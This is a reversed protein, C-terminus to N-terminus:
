QDWYHLPSSNAGTVTISLVPHGPNPFAIYRNKIDDFFTGPTTGLGFTSHFNAMSEPGVVQLPGSRDFTFSAEHGRKLRIVDQVSKFDSTGFDLLLSVTDDFNVRPLISLRIGTTGFACKCQNGAKMHAIRNLSERGGETAVSVTAQMSTSVSDVFSLYFRALRVTRPDGEVRLSGTQDNADIKGNDFGLSRIVSLAKNARMHEIPIQDNVTAQIPPLNAFLLYATFM